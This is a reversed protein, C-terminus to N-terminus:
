MLALLKQNFDKLIGTWEYKKTLIYQGLVGHKYALTHDTYYKELAAQFDSSACIQLYGQHDEALSSLYLETKPEILAAYDNTFIDALAGVKSIIQPKGLCAHELNCLGFGEGLCSNIGVDCANYLLNLKEDSFYLENPRIFIHNLVVREYDVDNKLCIVKILEVINYGQSSNSLLNLFLKLKPNYEQKKLFQIFADISIDHAKRYANRNTNLIIFDDPAFGMAQKAMQTDTIHFLETDFGHPLIALKTASFGISELNKLWCESFVLVLDSWVNINQFYLLRQYPYVLDLYICLKFTKEIRTTIFENLIRNIVIVDNYILVLEPKIRQITSCVIDVGYLETSGEPRMELADILHIFPHIDREIASNKFNSIGIYHVEHGLTALYNTLINGIRAYGTPQTPYTAFFLIRM